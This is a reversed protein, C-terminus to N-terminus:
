KIIAYKTYYLLIKKYPFSKSQSKLQGKNSFFETVNRGGLIHWTMASLSM